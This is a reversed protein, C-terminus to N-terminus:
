SAIPSSRIAAAAVSAAINTSSTTTAPKTSSLAALSGAASDTESHAEFGVGDVLYKGSKEGWM